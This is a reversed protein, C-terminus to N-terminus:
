ETAFEAYVVSLSDSQKLLKEKNVNIEKESNWPDVIVVSSTTVDKVTYGHNKKLGCVAKDTVGLTMSCEDSNHEFYNFANTIEDKTDAVGIREAGFIKYAYYPNGGTKIDYNTKVNEDAVVQEVALEIALADDDGKSYNSEESIDKNHKKMEKASVTYEKDIGQFSVDVSGDTNANISEQIVESGSETYSMSLIGSLLWCDGYEGQYIPEDLKGNIGNEKPEANSIAVGTPQVSTSETEVTEFISSDENKREDLGDFKKYNPIDGFVEGIYTLLKGLM